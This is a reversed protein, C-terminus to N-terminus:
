GEELGRIGGHIRTGRSPVDRHVLQPCCEYYRDTADNCQTVLVKIARANYKVFAEFAREESREFKSVVSPTRAFSRTIGVM